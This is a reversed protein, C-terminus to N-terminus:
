PLAERTDKGSRDIVVAQLMAKQKDVASLGEWENKNVAKDYTFGLPLENDNNYMVYDDNEPNMLLDMHFLDAPRKGSVKSASSLTILSSGDDYGHIQASCRILGSQVIMDSSRYM